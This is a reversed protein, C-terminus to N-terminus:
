GFYTLAKNLSRSHSTAHHSSTHTNTAVGLGGYISIFMAVARLLLNDAFIFVAMGGLHLTLHLALEALIRGPVKQDWGRERVLQMLERYAKGGDAPTSAVATDAIM